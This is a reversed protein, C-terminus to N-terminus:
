EFADMIMEEIIEYCDKYSQPVMLGAPLKYELNIKKERV